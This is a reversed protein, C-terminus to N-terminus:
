LALLKVWEEREGPQLQEPLLGAARARDRAKRFDDTRGQKQYARALHFFIPGTPVARAATELDKIAEDFRGLRTLIVGRTDLIHPQPGLKETAENIRDLGAQPENMDESLTWAMNNLFQHDGPKRAIIEKYVAIEEPYKGQLHRVFAQKQLLDIADPAEKLAAALYTDALPLWRPDAAPTNALNMASTGAEPAGGAKVVAELISAAEDDGRGDPGHLALYEALVCQGRLGLKGVKRAVREAAELQKLRVLLGIMKEGVPIDQLANLRDACAQELVSAAEQGQGRAVLLRARIEAVPLSNPEAELLRALQREAEDLDGATLLIGAYLRVADASGNEGAAVAAHARADAIQGMALYLRAMADHVAPSQPLEAALRQLIELSRERQGPETGEAYVRARALRDDPTDDPRTEPGIVRLAEAWAVQDGRHGALSLALKRRAWGLGPDTELLKRLMGEAEGRRGTQECYGVVATRVSVENPWKRLAEKYFKEAEAFKESARYCQAWFLEPRETKVSAKIKDATRGAEDMHRQAVQLMLLQLWPGPESPREATLARLTEEAKDPKGLAKLVEAQWLRVDLAEPSGQVVQAALQEARTKDGTRLAQLAALQEVQAQPIGTKKRIRELESDRHTRVLLAVLPGLAPQGGLDLAREYAKAAGDVDGQKEKVRGALLPGQPSGPDNQEIERVLREAEQMREGKDAAKATGKAPELLLEQVRAARWLSSKPGGQAKLAEIATHAASEDGATLALNLLLMQPEPSEPMLEAYKQYALRADAPAGRGAHYDGLAKWLAPQQDVAARKLGDELVGRAEVEHGQALLLAAKSEFFAAQPGAAALAEDLVKLAPAIQGRRSLAAARAQWLRTVRPNAATARRLLDDLAETQGRSALYDAQALAVDLANPSAKQARELVRELETWSRQNAPRQMQQERLLEIEAALLRLDGPLAKLGLQLTEIADEVRVAKKLRAIALWPESMDRALETTKQYAGLAKATDHMGEYCQGLLLYLMPELAKEVKYQVAEVEKLAEEARNSRLLSLAHLYHYWSNPAEGGILRRYQAILPEAERVRGMELLLSALRWTLEADNGGTLLLGARWDEVTSNPRREQLDILGQVVKAQQSEQEAKPIAELHAHAAALDGSRCALEAALLRASVDAPDAKVARDVETQAREREGSSLFYRARAMYASALAEPPSKENSAVLRDLVALAKEPSHLRDRYLRALREGGEADGPQKQAALEYEHTAEELAKSDGEEGVAELARALLRHAEADDEGRKIYERALTEAPKGRGPVKLNLILLRRRTKQRQPDIGLIQNHIPMATLAQASDQATDALIEAKLDLAEIDSPNLELYRNLYGLALSAQKQEWLTKAERLLTPTGHRARYASLGFFGATVVLGLVGVILLGRLNLRRSRTTTSRESM